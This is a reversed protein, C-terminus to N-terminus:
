GAVEGTAGLGLSSRRLSLRGSDLEGASGGRDAAESVVAEIADGSNVVAGPEVGDALGSGGALDSVVAGEDAGDGAGRCLEAIVGCPSGAALDSGASLAVADGPTEGAGARVSTVLGAALGTGGGSTATLCSGSGMSVSFCNMSDMGFPFTPLVM